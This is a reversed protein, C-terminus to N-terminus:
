QSLAQVLQVKKMKTAITKNRVVGLTVASRVLDPKKMSAWDVQDELKPILVDATSAGFLEAFGEWMKQDVFIMCDEDLVIWGKVRRRLPTDLPDLARSAQHPDKSRISGMAAARFHTELTERDLPAHRGTDKGAMPRMFYVISSKVPTYISSANDLRERVWSPKFEGPKLVMTWLDFGEEARDMWSALFNPLKGFEFEASGMYDITCLRDLLDWAEETLGLM